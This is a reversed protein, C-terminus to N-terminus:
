RLSDLRPARDGRQHTLRASQDFRELNRELADLVESSNICSSSRRESLRGQVADKQGLM